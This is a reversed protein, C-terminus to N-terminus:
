AGALNLDAVVVVRAAETAFRECLAAGIGQAGGTVVVIKGSVKM